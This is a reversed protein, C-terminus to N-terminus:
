VGEDVELGGVSLLRAVDLLPLLRGERLASGSFYKGSQAGSQLNADVVAREGERLYLVDRVGDIVIGVPVGEHQVVVVPVTAQGARPGSVGDFYPPSTSATRLAGRVDLLTVIDGRLNIQGLIHPPCCPVPAVASISVFERVLGLEIGFEEGGLAIVAVPARESNSNENEGGPRLRAARQELIAREAPTWPQSDFHTAAIETSSSILAPPTLSAAYDLLHPLHLLMVIGDGIQTVGAVFPSALDRQRGHAPAAEIQSPSLREVARVEQVIVAVEAGDWSLVILSDDLQPPAARLSMRASLDMVPVIAGRLNLVGVIFPATEPLPALSPLVLIERVALAPVGFLSAGLRFILFPAEVIETEPAAGKEDGADGVRKSSSIASSFDAAFHPSSDSGTFDM